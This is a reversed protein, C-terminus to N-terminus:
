TEGDFPGESHCISYSSSERRDRRMLPLSSAASYPQTLHHITGPNGGEARSPMEGELPSIPLDRRRCEGANSVHASVREYQQQALSQGM